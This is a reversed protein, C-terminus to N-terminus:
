VGGSDHAHECSRLLLHFLGVVERSRRARREPNFGEVGIDEDWLFVFDYPAVIDPHLFRKMYWWKTQRLAVVQSVCHLFSAPLVLCALLTVTNPKSIQKLKRVNGAAPALVVRYHKHLAPSQLPTQKTKQKATACRSPTATGHTSAGRSWTAM